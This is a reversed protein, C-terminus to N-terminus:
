VFKDDYDGKIITVKGEEELHRVQKVIRLQVEEVESLRMPGMFGMEETIFNRVKESMNNLFKDKLEDSAGKLAVVLDKQDVERLLVQIERDTLKRIDDFVLILNRVSEGLEPDRADIQGLINKEMSSGCLNLVDAVVKPGGVGLNVSLIGCLSTELYEEVRRLVKASVVNMCTIRYAVDARPHEPLRALIGSAQSADLQSLILAITQPHEHSIFPALQDPGIKELLYFGSASGAMEDDSRAHPEEAIVREAWGPMGVAGLLAQAYAAGGREFYAGSEIRTQVMALAAMATQHAVARLEAIARGVAVAEGRDLGGLVRAGVEEGVAIFFAAVIQASSMGVLSGSGEAGENWISRVVAAASAAHEWIYAHSSEADISAPLIEGPPISAEAEESAPEYDWGRPAAPLLAPVPGLKDAHPFVVKTIKGNMSM